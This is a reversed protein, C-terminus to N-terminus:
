LRGVGRSGVGIVAATKKSKYSLALGTENYRSKELDKGYIEYSQAATNACSKELDKM